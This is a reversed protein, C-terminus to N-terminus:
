FAKFQHLGMRLRGTVGDGTENDGSSMSWDPAISRRGGNGAVRTVLLM